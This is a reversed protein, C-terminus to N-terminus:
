ITLWKSVGDSYFTRSGGNTNITTIDTTDAGNLAFTINNTGAANSEDKVTLQFGAPVANAAFLTIIRAAATSTVAIISGFGIDTLLVAYSTATPYRTFAAQVPLTGLNGGTGTSTIVNLANSNAFITNGSLKIFRNIGVIVDDYFKFEMANNWIMGALTSTYDVASKPLLIQGISATNVGTALWAAANAAVGAGFNLVRGVGSIWFNGTQASANQNLITETDVAGMLQWQTGNFVAMYRVTTKLVGAAINAGSNSWIARAGTGDVNITVGAANVINPLFVIVQGTVLSTLTPTLSMTYAVNTGSTSGSIKAFDRALYKSAQLALSTAFKTDETGTNLDSSLAKVALNYLTDFYTKLTAKVSLWSVNQLLGTVSDWIGVKDADIPTNKTSAGNILAGITTVTENGTNTGSIADLKAKLLNTFANTDPNAEYAAKIQADSMLANLLDPDSIKIYNAGLGTTTAKYLAWKTDGDDVVFAQFPLSLVNYADRAAINAFTQENFGAIIKNYLKLFTNGDTPVGDKIATDYASIEDDTYTNADALSSVISAALNTDGLIRAQQETYAGGTSFADTGNELPTDSIIVENLIGWSGTDTPLVGELGDSKAYYARYKGVTYQYLVLKPSNYVELEDWLDIGGGNALLQALTVYESNEVAEQGSVTGSFIMKKTDRDGVIWDFVVDGDTNGILKFEGTLRDFKLSGRYALNNYFEYGAGDTNDLRIARKFTNLANFVNDLNKAAYLSYDPETIVPEDEGFVDIITILIEDALLTPALAVTPDEVGERKGIVNSTNAFILDKRYNLTTAPSLPITVPSPTSFISGDFGWRINAEAQATIILNGADYSFLVQSILQNIINQKQDLLNALLVNDLPNGTINSFNVVDGIKKWSAANGLATNDICIYIGIKTPDVPDYVAVPFGNKIYNDENFSLLDNFSNVLQRGDYTGSFKGEINTSIQKDGQQRM